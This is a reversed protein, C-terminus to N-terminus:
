VVRPPWTWVNNQQGDQRDTYREPLGEVYVASTRIITAQAASDGFVTVNVTDDGWVRTVIGPSVSAGNNSEPDMPVLVTEGLHPPYNNTM